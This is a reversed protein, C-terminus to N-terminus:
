NTMKAISTTDLQSHGGEEGEGRHGELGLRESHAKKFVAISPLKSIAEVQRVTGPFKWSKAM